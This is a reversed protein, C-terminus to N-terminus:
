ELGPNIEKLKRINFTHEVNEFFCFDCMIEFYNNKLQLNFEGDLIDEFDSSFNGGSFNNTKKTRDHGSLPRDKNKLKIDLLSKMFTTLSSKHAKNKLTYKDVLAVICKKLIKENIVEHTLQLLKDFVIFVEEYLSYSMYTVFNQLLDAFFM